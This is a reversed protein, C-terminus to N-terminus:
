STRWRLGCWPSCFVAVVNGYWRHPADACAFLKPATVVLGRIVPHDDQGTPVNGSDCVACRKALLATAHALLANM